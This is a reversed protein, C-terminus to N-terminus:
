KAPGVRALYSDILAQAAPAVGVFKVGMRLDDPGSGSVIEGAVEVPVTDGPLTFSLNVITGQPLPITHELRLGGRSLNGARRFYRENNNTEEVWMELPIRTTKRREPQRDPEREGRGEEEGESMPGGGSSLKDEAASASLSGAPVIRRVTPWPDAVTLAAGTVPHTLGPLAVEALPIRVFPRELLAPHPVKLAPTDIQQDGYLLVDVDITRPAWRRGPPRRRGLETEVAASAALLDHPSLNTQGRVVANVYAPQPEDAVADSEYFSSLLPARLVGRAELEAVARLLFDQRDGLNSGLGLYVTM